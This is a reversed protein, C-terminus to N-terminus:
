APTKHCIMPLFFNKFFFKPAFHCLLLKANVQQLSQTFVLFFQGLQEVNGSQTMNTLVEKVLTADELARSDPDTLLEAKQKPSLVSM